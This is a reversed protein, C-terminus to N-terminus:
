NKAGGGGKMPCVDNRGGGGNGGCPNGPADWAGENM